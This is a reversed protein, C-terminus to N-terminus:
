PKRTQVFRHLLESGMQAPTCCVAVGRGARALRHVFDKLGEPTREGTLGLISLQIEETACRRGEGLTQQLTKGTSPYCLVIEDNEYHATPEGDTILLIRRILHQKRLLWRRALRLGAQINTFHQPLDKASIPLRYESCRPDFLGVDRPQLEILRAGDLWEAQTAFGAIVLEDGPFRRRVLSRLALSARRALAFKGHQTMSGSLDLLLVTACRGESPSSRVVIDEEDLDLPQGRQYANALTATLDVGDLPDGPSHPHLEDGLERFFATQMHRGVRHTRANPRARFLESLFVDECLQLGTPSLEIRDGQEANPHRLLGAEFLARVESTQRNVDRRLQELAFGGRDTMMDILRLFSRRATESLLREKKAASGAQYTWATMIAAKV